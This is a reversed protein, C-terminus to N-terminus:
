KKLAVVLMILLPILISACLLFAVAKWVSNGKNFKKYGDIYKYKM